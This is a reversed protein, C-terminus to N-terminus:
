AEGALTQQWLEPDPHKELLRAANALAWGDEPQLDVEALVKRWGEGAPIMALMQVEALALRILTARM